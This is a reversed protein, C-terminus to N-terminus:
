FFWFAMGGAMREETQWKCQVCLDYKCGQNKPNPYQIKMNVFQGAVKNVRYIM